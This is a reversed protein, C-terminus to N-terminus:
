PDCYLKKIMRVMNKMSNGHASIKSRNCHSRSIYSCNNIHNVSSQTFNMMSQDEIFQGLRDFIADSPIRNKSGNFKAIYNLVSIAQQSNSGKNMFLWQPSEPVLIIYLACTIVGIVFVISFLYDMDSGIYKYFICTVTMTLVDVASIITSCFVQHQAEILEFMHTYSLSVKIHLFGYAFFAIKKVLISPSYIMFYNAILNAIMVVSMTPKRGYIQPMFCLIFGFGYGLFYFSGIQNYQEPPMCMLDLTVYWNRIYHEDSIDPKYEFQDNIERNQCIFDIDCMSWNGDKKCLYPQADTTMAFGYVLFM